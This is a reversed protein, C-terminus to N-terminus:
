LGNGNHTGELGISHSIFPLLFPPNFFLSLIVLLLDRESRLVYWLVSELFCVEGELGPLPLRPESVSLM